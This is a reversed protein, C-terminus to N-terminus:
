PRTEEIERKWNEVIIVSHSLFELYWEPDSIFIRLNLWILSEYRVHDLSVIGQRLAVAFLIIMKHLSVSIIPQELRLENLNDSKLRIIRPDKLSKNTLNKGRMTECRIDFNNCYSVEIFTITDGSRTTLKCDMNRLENLFRVAYEPSNWSCINYYIFLKDSLIIPNRCKDEDREQLEERCVKKFLDVASRPDDIVCDLLYNLTKLTLLRTDRNHMLVKMADAPSPGFEVVRDEIFISYLGTDFRNPPVPPSWDGAKVSFQLIYKGSSLRFAPIESISHDANEDVHIEIPDNLHSETDRWLRLIRNKIHTSGDTLTIWKLFLLILGSDEIMEAEIIKGLWRRHIRAIIILQEQDNGITPLRVNIISKDDIGSRLTDLFPSLTIEAIDEHIKVHSVQTEDDLFATVEDLSFFHFKMLIRPDYDSEISSLDIDLSERQFDPSVQENPTYALEIYPLCLEISLIREINDISQIVDIEVRDIRSGITIIYKNELIRDFYIGAQKDRLSLKTNSDVPLLLKTDEDRDLIIKSLSTSPDIFSRCTVVSYILSITKQDQSIISLKFRGFPSSGSLREDRLPIRITNSSNSNEADFLSLRTQRAQEERDISQLSIICDRDFDVSPLILDPPNSVFLDGSDDCLVRQTIDSRTGILNRNSISFSKFPLPIERPDDKDTDILIVQRVKRNGLHFLSYDSFFSYNQRIEVGKLELTGYTLLWDGDEIEKQDSSYTYSIGSFIMWPRVKDIGRFTWQKVTKNSNDSLIVNINMFSSYIPANFEQTEIAGNIWSSNLSHTSIVDDKEILLSVSIKSRSDNKITLKPIVLLLRNKNIDLKIYPKKDQRITSLPNLNNNYRREKLINVLYNPLMFSCSRSYPLAPDSDYIRLSQDLYSKSIHDGYELFRIIPKAIRSFKSRDREELSKIMSKVDGDYTIEGCRIPLVIKEIYDDLCNRPIGGHMLIPTVFRLCPDQGTLHFKHLNLNVNEIVYEFLKGIKMRDNYKLEIGLRRDVAEWYDGENYEHIGVQVLFVSVVFQYGHEELYHIGSNIIVNRIHDSIVSMDNNSLDIEGILTKNKLENALNFNIEILTDSERFM